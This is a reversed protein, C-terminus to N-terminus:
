GDEGASLPLAQVMLFETTFLVTNSYTKNGYTTQVAEGRHARPVRSQTDWSSCPNPWLSGSPEALRLWEPITSNYTHM